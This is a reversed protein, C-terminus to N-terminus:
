GDFADLFRDRFADMPWVPAAPAPNLGPRWDWASIRSLVAQDRTVITIPVDRSANDSGTVSTNPQHDGLFILVTNDDGYTRLWSLVATLSYQISDAYAARVKAPDSWVDNLQKGQAPMPNFITGDGLANWDVMRPLPAWPWHSSVLDIHAMVPPHDPTSLEDQQLKAMAYQDPMSAYSFAPGRYGLDRFDYLKDYGYFRGEPWDAMNAPQSNVTRWGARAFAASLTFRDSGTLTTYRQQNDVWLGSELTSHALWSGGGTTSSTLFASRAQFGAAALSQTGSDLLADIRPAIDSDQVAVRGYSEVFALVVNKGRLGTLLKGPPTDRFADVALADAFASKDHLDSSVQRVDRYALGVTGRSALPAGFVAAVLWVVGLVAVVKASVSRHRVALRTMRLAAWATAAILALAAVVIGIVALTGGHVLSLAPGLFSWDFVLNFPRDFAVFFGMDVLKLLTLVGLLAGATVAVIARARGRLVLVLAVGAIAEVPLRLFAVPTLLALDNPLVLAAVVLVVALVTLTGGVVTRTM